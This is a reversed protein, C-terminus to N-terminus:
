RNKLEELSEKMSLLEARKQKVLKNMEVQRNFQPEKRVKAELARLEATKTNIAKSLEVIKAMSGAKHEGIGSIQAVFNDYIRALSQGEIALTLAGSEMWPSTFTQKITFKTHTPDSWSKYNILMMSKGEYSLIFVIHHPMNCDIFSFLDPPCDPEKLSAVFVEIEKIEESSEVNITQPSLKYLWTISVVDNVFRTKMKLNVDMFKYFMNKPVVRDVICSQPYQLLNDM